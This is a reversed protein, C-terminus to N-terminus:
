IIIKKELEVPVEECEDSPPLLIEPVAMGGKKGGGNITGSVGNASGSVCHAIGSGGNTSVSFTGQQNEEEHMVAVARPQQQAGVWFQWQDGSYRYLCNQLRDFDSFLPNIKKDYFPKSM